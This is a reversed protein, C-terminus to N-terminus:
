SGMFASRYEWSEGGTRRARPRHAAGVASPGNFAATVTGPEFDSVL